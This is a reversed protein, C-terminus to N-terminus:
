EMLITGQFFPLFAPHEPLQKLAENYCEVLVNAPALSSAPHQKEWRGEIIEFAVSIFNVIEKQSKKVVGSQIEKLKGDGDRWIVKVSYHVDM